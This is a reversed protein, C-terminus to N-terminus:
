RIKMRTALFGNGRFAIMLSPQSAGWYSQGQVFWKTLCADCRLALRRCTDIVTKKCASQRATDCILGGPTTALARLADLNGAECAQLVETEKVRLRREDDQEPPDIADLSPTLLPHDVM